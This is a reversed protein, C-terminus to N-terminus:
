SDAQSPRLRLGTALARDGCNEAQTSSRSEGTASAVVIAGLVEAGADALARAAAELSAGTTVVDDVIVVSYGRVDLRSLYRPAVSLRERRSLTKRQRGLWMGPRQLAKTARACRVRQALETALLWTPEYGRRIKGGRASPVPVVLVPQAWSNGHARWAQAMLTALPAALPHMGKDKFATVVARTQPDYDSVAIVPRGFLYRSIALQVPHSKTTMAHTCDACLAADDVGCGACYRPLLFQLTDRAAELVSTM